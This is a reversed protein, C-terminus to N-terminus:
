APMSFEPEHNHAVDALLGQVAITLGCFRQPNSKAVDGLVGTFANELSWLTRDAFVEHPPNRWHFLLRPLVYHSVIDREYARLILSEAVTDSIATTRFRTNACGTRWRRSPM